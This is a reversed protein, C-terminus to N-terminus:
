GLRRRRKFAGMLAVGFALMPLAAPLPVPTHPLAEVLVDAFRVADQSAAYFGFSGDAFSGELDIMQTGDVSVQIRTATYSIDFAYERFDAWGVAGLAGGSAIQEVPGTRCFASTLDNAIPGTVRSLALGARATCGGFAQSSQKWDLLLYDPAAASLDGADYGLVFGFFDDDSTTRVSAKVQMRKGIDNTGSSFVTPLSNLTQTVTRGAAIIDGLLSIESASASAEFAIVDDLTFSTGNDTNYADILTQRTGPGSVAWTGEGPASKSWTNLDAFLPVSLLPAAMATAPLVCIAAALYPKRFM